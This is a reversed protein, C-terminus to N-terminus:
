RTTRAVKTLASPGKNKPSCFSIDRAGRTRGNINSQRHLRQEESETEKDTRQWVDFRDSMFLVERSLLCEEAFTADYEAQTRAKFAFLDHQCTEIVEQLRQAMDEVSEAQEDAPVVGGSWETARARQVVSVNGSTNALNTVSRIMQQSMGKLRRLQKFVKRGYTTRALNQQQEEEELTIIETQSHQNTCGVRSPKRELRSIEQTLNARRLM